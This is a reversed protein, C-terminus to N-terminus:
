WKEYRVVEDLPRRPRQNPSQDPYGMTIIAVVYKDNPIELVPRIEEQIYWTVWCTGLGLSEAALVMNEGAIATDLIIQKPGIGPTEEDLDMPGTETTTVRIDAVCVIFVPAGAMWDQKHSVHALKTRMEESRVIIFNWPQTNSDSPALRGCDIIKLLTDEEIPQDKYKRISRRSQIAEIM